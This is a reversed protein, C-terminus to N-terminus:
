ILQKQVTPFSLFSKLVEIDAFLPQENFIATNIIQTHDASVFMGMREPSDIQLSGALSVGHIDVV